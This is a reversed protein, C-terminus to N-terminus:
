TLVMQGQFGTNALGEAPRSARTRFTPTDM